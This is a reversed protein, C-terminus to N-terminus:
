RHMIDSRPRYSLNWVAPRCAVDQPYERDAM